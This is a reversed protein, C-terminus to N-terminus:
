TNAERNFEGCTSDPRLAMYYRGTTIKARLFEEGTRGDRLAASAAGVMKAWMYGTCAYGALHMFDYSGALCSDPDESLKEGLWAAASDLDRAANELPALVENRYWAEGDGSEAYDKIQDVLIRISEGGNAGLKRGVLDLAQVGNAGEYIMTIRADRVRQSAELDEIYGHGGFVQQAAVASEFGKDTLFGKIVPTLLAALGASRRDGGRKERDLLTACWLTLARAGEVFSKQDLLNRRVDPHVIIPDAALRPYKAGAAARGQLREGAYAAASQYAAEAVAFGQLGVHLRAINMMTFM